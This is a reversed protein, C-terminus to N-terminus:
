KGNEYFDTSHTVSLRRCTASMHGSMDGVRRWCTLWVSKQSSKASVVYGVNGVLVVVVFTPWRKSLSHALLLKAASTQSMNAVHKRCTPRVRLHRCKAPGLLGSTVSVIEPHRYTSQTQFHRCSVNGGFIRPWLWLECVCWCWAGDHVSVHVKANNVITFHISSNKQM